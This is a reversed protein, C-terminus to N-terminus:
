ASRLRTVSERGQADARALLREVRLLESVSWAQFPCGRPTHPSAGDAIESVHGLGAHSLHTLLPELFRERASDRAEVDGDPGGGGHAKVWAEIFPGALWPWATGQHYAADRERPGGQYHGAYDQHAPSLSRLGLPTWLEREVLELV